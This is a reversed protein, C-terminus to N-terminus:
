LIKLYEALKILLGCLIYCSFSIAIVQFLFSTSIISDNTRMFMSSTIAMALCISSTVMALFYKERRYMIVSAIQFSFGFLFLIQSNRCIANEYAGTCMVAGIFVMFNFFMGLFVYVLIFYRGDSTKPICKKMYKLLTEGALKMLNNLMLLYLKM